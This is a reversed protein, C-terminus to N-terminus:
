NRTSFMFIGSIARINTLKVSYKTHFITELDSKAAETWFKLPHVKFSSFMIYSASNANDLYLDLYVTNFLKNPLTRVRETFSFKGVKGQNGPPMKASKESKEKDTIRHNAAHCIICAIYSSYDFVQILTNIIPLCSM